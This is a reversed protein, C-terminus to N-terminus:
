CSKQWYKAMGFKLAFTAVLLCHSLFVIVDDTQKRKL